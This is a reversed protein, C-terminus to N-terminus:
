KKTLVVEFADAAAQATERVAVPQGDISLQYVGDRVREMHLTTGRAQAERLRPGPTWDIASM